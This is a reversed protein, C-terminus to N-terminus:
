GRKRRSRTAGTTARASTATTSCIPGPIWFNPWTLFTTLWLVWWVNVTRPTAHDGQSGTPASAHWIEDAIRKPIVLNGLPILWGLVSMAPSVRPARARISPQPDRTPSGCYGACWARM